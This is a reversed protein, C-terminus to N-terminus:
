AFVVKRGKAPRRMAGGVLGFGVIMMAWSAPEPAPSLPGTSNDSRVTVSSIRFSASAIDRVYVDDLSGGGADYGEHEEHLAFYGGVQPGLDFTWTGSPPSTEVNADSLGAPLSFGFLDFRNLVFDSVNSASDGTFFASHASRYYSQEVQAVDESASGSFYVPYGDYTDGVTILAQTPSWDEAAFYGGGIHDGDLAYTVGNITISVGVPTASGAGVLASYDVNDYYAGPTGADVKVSVTIAQGTLVFADGMGFVGTEDVNYVGAIHTNVDVTGNWDFTYVAATASMPIGAAIAAAVPALAAGMALCFRKFSAM